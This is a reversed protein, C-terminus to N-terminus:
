LSACLFIVIVYLKKHPHTSKHLVNTHNQEMYNKDTRVNSITAMVAFPICGMESNVNPNKKSSYFISKEFEGSLVRACVCVCYVHAGSHLNLLKPSFMIAFMPFDTNGLIQKTNLFNVVLICLDM